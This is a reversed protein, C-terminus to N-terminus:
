ERVTKWIVACRLKWHTTGRPKPVTGACWRVVKAVRQRQGRQEDDVAHGPACRRGGRQEGAAIHAHHRGLAHHTVQFRALDDLGAFGHLGALALHLQAHDVAGHHRQALARCQPQVVVVEGAGGAVLFAAEHAQQAAPQAGDAARDALGPGVVVLEVRRRAGDADAAGLVGGLDVVAQAHADDGAAHGDAVVAAAHVHGLAQRGERRVLRYFGVDGRM